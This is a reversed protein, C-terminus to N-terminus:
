LNNSNHSLDESHNRVKSLSVARSENNKGNVYLSYGVTAQGSYCRRQRTGGQIGQKEAQFSVM